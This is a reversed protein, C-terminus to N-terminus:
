EKDEVFRPYGFTVISRYLAESYARNASFLERQFAHQWKKPIPEGAEVYLRGWAAVNPGGGETEDLPKRGRIRCASCNDLVDEDRESASHEHRTFYRKAAWQLEKAEKPLWPKANM